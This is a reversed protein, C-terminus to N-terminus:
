NNLRLVRAVDYETLRHTGQNSSAIVIEMQPLTSQNQGSEANVLSKTRSSSHPDGRNQWEEVLSSTVTQLIQRLFLAEANGIKNNGPSINIPSNFVGFPMNQLRSMLMSKLRRQSQVSGGSVMIQPSTAPAGITEGHGLSIKNNQVTSLSNRWGGNPHTECMAVRAGRWPHTNNDEHIVDPCCDVGALLLSAGLPRLGGGFAHNQCEDAIARSLRLVTESPQTFISQRRFVHTASGHSSEDVTSVGVPSLGLRHWGMLRQEQELHSYIIQLLTTADSLLGSLGVLITSHQFSSARSSLPVEIIRFQARQHKEKMLSNIENMDRQELQVDAAEGGRDPPSAQMTSLSTTSSPPPPSITAMILVTDGSGPLGIGISVIPNSEERVCANTAYEVQLLRGDPTFQPTTLDYDYAAYRRSHHGSSSGHSSALAHPLIALVLLLFFRLIFTM